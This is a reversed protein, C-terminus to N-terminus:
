SIEFILVTYARQSFLLYHAKEGVWLVVFPTTPGPKSSSGGVPFIWIVTLRGLSGRMQSKDQILDM